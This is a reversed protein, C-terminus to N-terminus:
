EEDKKSLRSVPDHGSPKPKPAPPAPKTEAAPPPAPQEGRQQAEYAEREARKREREERLQADMAARGTRLREQEAAREAKRQEEFAARQAQLRAAEAAQAARKAEDEARKKDLLAPPRTAEAPKPPIPPAERAERLVEEREIQQASRDIINDMVGLEGEIQDLIGGVINHTTQVNEFSEDLQESAAENAKFARKFSASKKVRREVIETTVEQAHQLAQGKAAAEDQLRKMERALAIAEQPLVETADTNPEFDETVEPTTAGTAFDGSSV